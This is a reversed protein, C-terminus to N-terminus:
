WISLQLNMPSEHLVHKDDEIISGNVLMVDNCNTIPAEVTKGHFGAYTEVVEAEGEEGEKKHKKIFKKFKKHSKKAEVYLVQLTLVLFLLKKM